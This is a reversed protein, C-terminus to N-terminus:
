TRRRCAGDGSRAPSGGTAGASGLRRGDWAGRYLHLARRSRATAAAASGVTIGELTVMRDGPMGTSGRRRRPLPTGRLQTPAVAIARVDTPPAEDTVTRGPAVVLVVSRRARPSLRGVAILVRRGQRRANAPAPSLLRTGCCLSVRLRVGDARVSSSNVVTVTWAVRGDRLRRGRVTGGLRPRPKADFSSALVTRGTGSLGLASTLVLVDDEPSVAVAPTAVDEGVPHQARQWPGGARATAMGATASGPGGPDSWAVAARGSRSLAVGARPAVEASPQPAPTALRIVGAAPASPGLLLANLGGSADPSSATLLVNGRADIALRPFGGPTVDAPPAWTGATGDGAASRVMPAAGPAAWAVQALGGSATAIALESGDTALSAPASWAGDTTRLAARVVGSPARGVTPTVWAAAAGGDGALALRPAASGAEPGLALAPVPRWTEGGRSRTAGRIVWAGDERAAWIVHAAGGDAISVQPSAFGFLGASAPSHPLRGVSWRRSGPPRTAVRVVRGVAAVGSCRRRRSEDGRRHGTDRGADAGLHVRRALPGPLRAPRTGGSAADAGEYTRGDM